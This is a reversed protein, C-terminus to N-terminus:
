ARATDGRSPLENMTFELLQPPTEPPAGAVPETTILSHPDCGRHQGSADAIVVAEGWTRARGSLMEDLVAAQYSTGWQLHNNRSEQDPATQTFVARVQRRDSSRNPCM